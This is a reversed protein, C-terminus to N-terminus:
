IAFRKEINFNPLSKCLGTRLHTSVEIVINCNDHLRQGSGIESAIGSNSMNAMTPFSDTCATTTGTDEDGGVM